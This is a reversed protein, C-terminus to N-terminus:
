PIAAQFSVACSLGDVIFGQVSFQHSLSRAIRRLNLGASTGKLQLTRRAPRRILMPSSWAEASCTRADRSGITSASWRTPAGSRAGTSRHSTCSRWGDDRAAEMVPVAAPFQKRLMGTVQQWHARVQDPAQIVFV